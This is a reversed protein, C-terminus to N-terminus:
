RGRRSVAKRRELYAKREAATRRRGQGDYYPDDIKPLYFEGNLTFRNCEPTADPIWDGSMLNQKNRSHNLGHMHGAEHTIVVCWTYATEPTIPWETNDVNLYISCLETDYVWASTETDAPDADPDDTSRKVKIGRTCSQPVGGWYRVSAKWLEPVYPARAASGTIPVSARVGGVPPNTFPGTHRDLVFAPATAPTLACAAACLLVAAFRCFM